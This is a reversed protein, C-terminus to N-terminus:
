QEYATYYCYVVFAGARAPVRSEVRERFCRFPRGHGKQTAQAGSRSVVSLSRAVEQATARTHPPGLRRSAIVESSVQLRRLRYTRACRVFRVCRVVSVAFTDKYNHVHPTKVLQNACTINKHLVPSMHLNNAQFPGNMKRISTFSIRCKNFLSSFLVVYSVQVKVIDLNVQHRRAM